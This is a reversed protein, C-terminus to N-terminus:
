VTIKLGDAPIGRRPTTYLGTRKVLIEGAGGDNGKGKRGIDL